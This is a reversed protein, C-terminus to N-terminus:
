PSKTVTYTGKESFFTDSFKGKGTGSIVNLTGKFTFTDLGDAVSCTMALHGAKDTSGAVVVCPLGGVDPFQGSLAGKKWVLNAAFVGGLSGTTTLTFSLNLKAPYATGPEAFAGTGDSLVAMATLAMVGFHRRFNPTMPM